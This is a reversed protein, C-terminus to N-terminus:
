RRRGSGGRSPKRQTCLGRALSRIMTDLVQDYSEGFEDRHLIVLGVTRIVGLIVEPEEDARIDGAVQGRRLFEVIPTVVHPMVRALEAAGVRRGVAKLEDPHTVLRRYFPDTAWIEVSARMLDELAEPGPDADLASMLKRGVVPARTIMVELYLSEKSEFFAYFSSKAIGVPAVLEDLSTKRLGQRAFLDTATQLLRLTIHARESAAFAVAM